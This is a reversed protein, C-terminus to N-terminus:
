RRPGTTSTEYEAAPASRSRRTALAARATDVSLRLLFAVGGGQLAYGVLNMPRAIADYGGAVLIRPYAQDDSVWQEDLGVLAQGSSGTYMWVAGLTTILGGLLIFTVLRATLERESRVSPSSSRTFLPRNADTRLVAFFVAAALALAVLTALHNPWGAGSLYGYGSNFAMYIPLSSYDPVNGFFPGDKPATTAIAIQWVSTLALLAALIGLIWLLTRSAFACWPRRPVISREGLAPLPIRRLALAAAAVVLTAAFLPAPRRWWGDFGSMDNTSVAIASVATAVVVVLLSGAVGAWVLTATRRGTQPLAVIRRPRVWSLIFLSLGFTIAVELPLLDQVAHAFLFLSNM